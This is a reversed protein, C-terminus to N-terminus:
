STVLGIRISKSRHIRKSVYHQACSHVCSGNALVSGPGIVGVLLSDISWSQDVDAVQRTEEQRTKMERAM